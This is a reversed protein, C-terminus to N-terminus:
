FITINTAILKVGRIIKPNTMRANAKTQRAGRKPHQLEAALDPAATAVVAPEPEDGLPDGLVDDVLSLAGPRKCRSLSPQSCQLIVKMSPLTFPKLPRHHLGWWTTMGESDKKNGRKEKEEISNKTQKPRRIYDAAAPLAPCACYDFHYRDAERMTLDHLLANTAERYVRKARGQLVVEEVMDVVEVEDVVDEVEDVVDEVEVVVEEAEVVEVVVEVVMEVVMEVEVVTGDGDGLDLVHFPRTALCNRLICVPLLLPPLEGLEGVAGCACCCTSPTVMPTGSSSQGGEVNQSATGSSTSSHVEITSARPSSTIPMYRTGPLVAATAERVSDM